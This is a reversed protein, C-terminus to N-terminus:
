RSALPPSGPETPRQMQTAGGCEPAATWGTTKPAPGLPTARRACSPAAPRLWGAIRELLESQEALPLHILAYLSVVHDFSAPPFSLSMVDANVFEAQPVLERARAIQVESIDVGTVHHGAVTLARAVPVGSGCCVDLVRSGSSLRDILEEIWDHYKSPAGTAEDYRRSLV